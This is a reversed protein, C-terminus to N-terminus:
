IRIHEDYCFRAFRGTVRTRFPLGHLPGDPDDILKPAAQRLRRAVWWQVDIQAQAWLAARTRHRAGDGGILTVVALPALRPLQLSQQARGEHSTVLFYALSKHGHDIAEAVWFAARAGRGNAIDPAHLRAHVILAQRAARVAISM